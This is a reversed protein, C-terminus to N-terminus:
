VPTAHAVHYRVAQAPLLHAGLAADHEQVSRVLEDAGAADLVYAM